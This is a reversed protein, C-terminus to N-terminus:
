VHARGIQGGFGGMWLGNIARGERTAITRYNADVHGILDKTIFDDWANKQGEESEAWNVYWSNGGDPMVVILDYAKAFDAARNRGWNTFNGSYGHLLYLVPYRDTGSDYGPPLVVNYKLTRGVSDSKYEVTKMVQPSAPPQALATAPVALTLLASFALARPTM